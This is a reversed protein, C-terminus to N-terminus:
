ADKGAGPMAQHEEEAQEGYKAAHISQEVKREVQKVFKGKLRQFLTKEKTKPKSEFAMFLSMVMGLMLPQDETYKVLEDIGSQELEEEPNM